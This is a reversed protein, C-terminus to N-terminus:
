VEKAFRESGLEFDLPCRQRLAHSPDVVEFLGIRGVQGTVGFDGLLILRQLLYTGGQQRQQQGWGCSPWKVGAICRPEAYM